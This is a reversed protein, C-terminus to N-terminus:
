IKFESKVREIEDRFIIAREFNLERAAALM